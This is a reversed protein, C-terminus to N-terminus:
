NAFTEGFPIVVTKFTNSKHTTTFQYNGTVQYTSGPLDACAKATVEADECVVKGNYFPIQPHTVGHSSNLWIQRANKLENIFEFAISINECWLGISLSCKAFSIGEKTTRFVELNVIPLEDSAIMSRPCKVITSHLSSGNESSQILQLGMSAYKEFQQKLQSLKGSELSQVNLPKLKAQLIELFKKEVEAQVLLTRVQHLDESQFCRAIFDSAGELDCSQTVIITSKTNQLTVKHFVSFHYPNSLCIRIGCEVITVKMATKSDYDMNIFAQQYRSLDM